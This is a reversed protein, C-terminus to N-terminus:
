SVEEDVAEERRDAEREKWRNEKRGGRTERSIQTISVPMPGAYCTHLIRVPHLFSFLLFIFLLFSSSFFFCVGDNGPIYM